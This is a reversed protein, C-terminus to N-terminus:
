SPHGTEAPIISSNVVTSGGHRNPVHAKEVLREVHQALSVPQVPLEHREGEACHAM